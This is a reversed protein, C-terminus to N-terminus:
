HELPASYAALLQALYEGDEVADAHPAQSLEGFQCYEAEVLSLLLERLDQEDVQRTRLAGCHDCAESSRAGHRRIFRALGDDDFCKECCAM